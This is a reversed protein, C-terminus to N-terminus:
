RSVRQVEARKKRSSLHSSGGKTQNRTSSIVVGKAGLLAGITDLTHSPLFNPDQYLAELREQPIATTSRITTDGNGEQWASDWLQALCVCGDAMVDITAAGFRKWLEDARPAPKSGDSKVYENIIDAPAIAAFTKQMLSVVAVAARHGGVVLSPQSASSVAAEVGQVIEPVHRDVMDDEYASHVGTGLPVKGKIKQGDSNRVMGSVLHDPNGNFLYSIHLPQCSDGVYHSLIGAACVFQDVQGARVFSVMADYIQWARFPLLGRSEEQDPHQEKVADYYRRWVNVDVNEPKGKCIELLTAGEPLKPNLVRDMDAFHNAHEPAKMGGRKHPGVKWVMDPVDALPVFDRKSLGQMAKKNIDDIDFSIRDLNEIMLAKLQRNRVADIARTAISYHGVAGWYDPLGTNWDRLVTLDLQDCVTSLFTVLAYPSAKGDDDLFVQGGWQLAFPRPGLPDGSQDTLWLTGSDGPHTGLPQKDAPGILADAVYEFGGVSQFRYFLACIEGRMEGSAAGHARVKVGILRLSINTINLDALPGIEGVGYVQTTWDNLNDIDILGVDLDVYINRGPWGPYVEEFLKRSLQLSASTGIAVKNRRLLSSIISGPAGAVHRNTLAYTKHGDTVLCGISAIHEQGQVDCVVPYGGGITGAPFSYNAEDQPRVDNKEVLIVCIPVKQGNPMYVAPPVADEPNSFSGPQVWESVFVLIAPWSYSRVESNALTRPPRQGHVLTDGGAPHEQSPWPDSSRIRYRGVATAIVNAKNILHLHFNDRAALLDHLSLLNFDTQTAFLDPTVM